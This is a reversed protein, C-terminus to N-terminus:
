KLLICLLLLMFEEPNLEKLREMSKCVTNRVSQVKMNMMLAIEEYELEEIYRLYIIEKQHDTLKSLMNDIVQRLYSREEEDILKDEITLHIYFSHECESIDVTNKKLRISDLFNNRIAKLLYFKLNNGIVEFEINFYLKLFIDQIADKTGNATMGVSIAYAYMMPYYRKYIVSFSNRDGEKFLAWLECDSSTNMKSLREELIIYNLVAIAQM